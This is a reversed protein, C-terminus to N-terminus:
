ITLSMLGTASRGLGMVDSGSGLTNAAFSSLRELLFSPFPYKKCTESHLYTIVSIANRWGM